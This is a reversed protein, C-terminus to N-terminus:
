VFDIKTIRTLIEIIFSIVFPIKKILNLLIVIINCKLQSDIFSTSKKLM